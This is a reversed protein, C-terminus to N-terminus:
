FINYLFNALDWQYYCLKILYYYHFPYLTRMLFLISILISEKSILRFGNSGRRLITFDNFNSDNNHLLLHDSVASTQM